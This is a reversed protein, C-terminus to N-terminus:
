IINEVLEAFSPSKEHIQYTKKNYNYIYIALEAVSVVLFSAFISGAYYGYPICQGGLLYVKDYFIFAFDLGNAETGVFNSTLGVFLSFAGLVMEYIFLLLHAVKFRQNNSSVTEVIWYSSTIFVPLVAFPTVDNPMLLSILFCLANLIFATVKVIINM